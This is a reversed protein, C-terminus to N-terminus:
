TVCRNYIRGLAPEAVPSFDPDCGLPLRRPSLTEPASRNASPLQLARPVPLRDGKHERNVATPSSLEPAAPGMAIIPEVGVILGACITATCIAALKGIMKREM